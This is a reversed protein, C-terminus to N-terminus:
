DRHRRVLAELASRARRLRAEGRTIALMREARDLANALAEASWADLINDYVDALKILRAQWPGKRLRREYDAERAPEGMRRDKTLVSVLGAVERGFAEHIEDYDVLTDEICDHLFAAALVVPDKEGFLVAVTMAVRTPHAAYPTVGDRRVQHRHARSALSAAKQWLSPDSSPPRRSPMQPPEPNEGGAKL